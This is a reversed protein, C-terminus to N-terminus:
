RAGEKAASEYNRPANRENLLFGKENRVVVLKGDVTLERVLLYSQGRVTELAGTVEISKGVTLSRKVDSSLYPGFSADYAGQPGALMLHLGVPANEIGKTVIQRISGTVRIEQDGRYALVSNEHLSPVDQAISPASAAFSVALCASTLLVNFLIEFCNSRIEPTGVSQPM